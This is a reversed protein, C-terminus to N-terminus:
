LNHQAYHCSQPFRKKQEILAILGGGEGWHEDNKMINSRPFFLPKIEFVFIKRAKKFESERM